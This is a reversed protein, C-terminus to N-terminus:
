IYDAFEKELNRFKRFGLFLFILLVSLSILFSEIDLKTQGNLISWRFGDIVCVMPNLSYLFKWKEPIITSSYGIPSIYLGFQVFFPIVYRFDRFKVNLATVFLGPGISALFALLIFFPLAFIQLGPYYNYWFMLFILIIFGIIFDVFCVVVASTPMIIRPFYIKSILNSNSILSNSAGTLSSSFFTWPLLGALVMLTYPADGENPLKAIKSFAFTLVIMTLVPQILAWAFGIITQKYKVAVDRWALVFFLDKYYLLDKWYNYNSSNPEIIIKFKNKDM